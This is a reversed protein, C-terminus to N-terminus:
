PENVEVEVVKLCEDAFELFIPEMMALKIANWANPARNIECLFNRLHPNKLIDKLQDSNQLEELKELPVTDMTTFHNTRDPKRDEIISNAEDNQKSKECTSNQQHIKYCPLSCYHLTCKPCKYKGDDGDCVVCIKTKIRDM